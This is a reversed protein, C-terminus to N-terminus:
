IPMAVDNVLCQKINIPNVSSLVIVFFSCYTLKNNHTVIAYQQLNHERDHLTEKALLLDKLMLTSRLKKSYKQFPM